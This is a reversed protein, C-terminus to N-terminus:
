HHNGLDNGISNFENSKVDFTMVSSANAPVFYLKGNNAAITDM